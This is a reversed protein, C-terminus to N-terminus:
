QPWRSPLFELRVAPLGDPLVVALLLRGEAIEEIRYTLPKGAAQGQGDRRQLELLEGTLKWTGEQRTEDGRLLTFGADARCELFLRGLPHTRGIQAKLSSNEPSVSIGDLMWVKGALDPATPIQAAARSWLAVVIVVLIPLRRSVAFPLAMPTM